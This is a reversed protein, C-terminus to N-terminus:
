RITRPSGTLGAALTSRRKTARRAYTILRERYYACSGRPIGLVRAAEAISHGRRVLDFLNRECTPLAKAIQDLVDNSELAALLPSSQPEPGTEPLRGERARRLGSRRRFRLIYNRVAEKLWPTAIQTMPIGARILWEWLDQALDEADAPSLGSCRCVRTMTRYAARISDDPYIETAKWPPAHM